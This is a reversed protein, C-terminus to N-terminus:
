AVRRCATCTGPLAPMTRMLAYERELEDAARELAMAAGACKKWESGGTLGELGQIIQDAMDPAVESSVELVLSGRLRLSKGNDEIRLSAHTDDLGPRDGVVIGLFDQDLNSLGVIELRDAGDEEVEFGVSDKVSEVVARAIALRVEIFEALSRGYVDVARWFPSDGMHEKLSQGEVSDPYTLSVKWELNGPTKTATWTSSVIETEGLAFVPPRNGLRSLPRNVSGVFEEPSNSLIAWHEALAEIYAKERITESVRGAREKYIANEITRIDSRSKLAKKIQSPSLGKDSLEIWKMKEEAAVERPM